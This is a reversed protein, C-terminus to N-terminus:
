GDWTVQWRQRDRQVRYYPLHMKKCRATCTIFVSSTQETDESSNVTLAQSLILTYSMVCTLASFDTGATLRIQVDTYVETFQLRASFYWAGTESTSVSEFVHLRKLTSLKYTVCCPGFINICPLYIAVHTYKLIINWMYTGIRMSWSHGLLVTSSM